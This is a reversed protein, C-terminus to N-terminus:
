YMGNLRHLNEQEEREYIDANNKLTDGVIHMEVAGERLRNQVYEATAMYADWPIQFIGFEVQSTKVGEAKQVGEGLRDGARHWASAATRLHEVAVRVMDGTPETM